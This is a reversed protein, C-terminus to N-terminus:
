YGVDEWDLIFPMGTMVDQFVDHAYSLFWLPDDIVENGQVVFVNSPIKTNESSEM